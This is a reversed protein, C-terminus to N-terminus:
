DTTTLAYEARPNEKDLGGDIIKVSRVFKWNDDSLVGAKVVADTTFKEIITFNGMDCLHNSDRYITVTIDVQDKFMEVDKCQKAVEKMLHDKARKLWYTNVKKDTGVPIMFNNLSYLINQKGQKFRLPLTLKM